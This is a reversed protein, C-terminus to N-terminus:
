VSDESTTHWLKIVKKVALTSLMREWSWEEEPGGVEGGAGKRGGPVTWGRRQKEGMRCDSTSSMMLFIFGEVHAKSAKGVTGMLCCVETMLGRIVLIMLREIRDPETGGANFVAM